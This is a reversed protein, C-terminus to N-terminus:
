KELNFVVRRSMGYFAVVVGEQEYPTFKWRKVAKVASRDFINAPMSGTVEVNMTAGTKNVDFRVDVYGEIGKNAARIPYDPAVMMRAVPLSSPATVLGGAGIAPPTFTLADGGTGEMEISTAPPPIVDPMDEILQPKIPKPPTNMNKIEREVLVVNISQYEKVEPMDLEPTTILIHMLSILLVTVIIATLLAVVWRSFIKLAYYPIFASVVDSVTRNVTNSVIATM